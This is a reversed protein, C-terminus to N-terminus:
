GSQSSRFRRRRRFWGQLLHDEWAATLWPTGQASKLLYGLEVQVREAAVQQLLPSLQCIARHTAPEIQFGLQAAQRYARLLRLPDDALNSQSVM